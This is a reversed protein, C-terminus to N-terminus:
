EYEDKVLIHKFKDNIVDLIDKASINDICSRM